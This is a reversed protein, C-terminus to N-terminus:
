CFCKNISMYLIQKAIAAVAPLPSTMIFITYFLLKLSHLAASMIDVLVCDTGAHLLNYSRIGSNHLIFQVLGEVM